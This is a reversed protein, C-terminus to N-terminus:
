ESKLERLVAWRPDAEDVACDCVEDNLNQGCRPCLGKCEPKCVVFPNVALVIEERVAGSLDLADGVPELAYEGGGEDGDAVYVMTVDEAFHTEVPQLCRRCEQKLVGAVSGRAVVEGTGAFSARLRVNVDGSWELDTERWLDDDAGIVGEVAVSGERDLQGLDVRLMTMSALLM